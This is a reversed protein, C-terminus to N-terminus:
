QSLAAEGVGLHRSLVTDDHELEAPTAEHVVEGKSIIYIYDAVALAMPLHQEVLLISQGGQKLTAIVETVHNVATPSLGESPEDMLLLDANTMLARGIALLSQQGGSLLNGKFGAREKLIPFLEYVRQLTWGGGNGSRAAVKLNEEVSLSPFIVRGQPVLGIGRRAIEHPRLGTINEGKFTISGSRPPTLGTISRITTTKGMGNRGLLAVVTGPKVALSLGRLVHSEGYYTHINTLSLIILVM